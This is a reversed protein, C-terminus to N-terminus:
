ICMYLSHILVYIYLIHQACWMYLWWENVWYTVEGKRFVDLVIFAQQNKVFEKNRKHPQEIKKKYKYDNFWNIQKQSSKKSFKLYGVFVVVIVFYLFHCAQNFNLSYIYVNFLFIFLLLMLFSYSVLIM